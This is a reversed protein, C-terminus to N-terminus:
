AEGGGQPKAQSKSQGQDDGQDLSLFDPCQDLWTLRKYQKEMKEELWRDALSAAERRIAQSAEFRYLRPLPASKIHRLLALAGKSLPTLSQEKFRGLDQACLLGGERFSFGAYARFPDRCYVCAELGPALGILEMLRMASMRAIFVPDESVSIEYITYAWLDFIEKQPEDNRAVDSFIEAAHSAAALRDLDSSISIFSEIVSGDKVTFRSQRCTLTFESLSFLNTVGRLRSKMSESAPAMATILGRDPTLLHLLRHRDKWPFSNMVFAKTVLSTM